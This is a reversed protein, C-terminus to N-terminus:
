YLRLYMPTATLISFVPYSVNVALECRLHFLIDTIKERVVFTFPLNVESKNIIYQIEIDLPLNKKLELCNENTLRIFSSGKKVELFEGNKTYIRDLYYNLEESKIRITISDKNEQIFKIEFNPKILDINEKEYFLSTVLSNIFKEGLEINEKNGLGRHFDVYSQMTNIDISKKNAKNTIQMENSQKRISIWAVIIAIFSLIPGVTDGFKAGATFDIHAFKIIAMVYIPIVLLLFGFTILISSNIYIWNKVEQIWNKKIKNM